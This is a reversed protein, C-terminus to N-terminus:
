GDIWIDLVGPKQLIADSEARRIQRRTAGARDVEAQLYDELRSVLQSESRLASPHSVFRAAMAYAARKTKTGMGAAMLLHRNV